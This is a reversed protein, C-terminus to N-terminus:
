ERGQELATEGAGGRRRFRRPGTVRARRKRGVRRRMSRRARALARGVASLLDSDTAEGRVSGNPVLEVTAACRLDIGGRPGNVDSFGLTVSRVRAASPELAARVRRQLHRQIANVLDFDHTRVHVHM